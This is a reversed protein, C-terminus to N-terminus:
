KKYNRYYWLLNEVKREWKKQMEKNNSHDTDIDYQEQMNIRMREIVKYMKHLDRRINKGVKYQGLRKRMIRAHLESIDFHLQEHALLSKTVQDPKVWSLSPYFYCDVDYTLDVEGQATGYAWQYTIGSNVSAAFPSSFKPDGRFDSWDLKHKEAYSFREIVTDRAFVFVLLVAFFKSM